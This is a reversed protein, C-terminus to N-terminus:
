PTGIGIAVKARQIIWEVITDLDKQSTDIVEAGEAVQLPATDRQTDRSDREKQYNLAKNETLDEERARRIGRVQASATLYIKLDAKPFVVTGCDRGEAILGRHAQKVCDRQPSLLAERVKPLSSVQSAQDALEEDYTKDSIEQGNVYILTKQPDMIVRWNEKKMLDVIRDEATVPVDFKYALFAVARYFAGTSIWHWHLMRALKYSVSTKGSAVPGDITIM